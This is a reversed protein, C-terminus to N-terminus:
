GGSPGDKGSGAVARCDDNDNHTKGDSGTIGIIPCPCVAFFVEMESIIVAGKRAAEQLFRPHLGPTRFIVDANLDNLYDPGLHLRCGEKELEDALTGLAGRDKKDCVTVDINAGRLLRILPTNSVGVGIVAVKKDALSQLYEQITM